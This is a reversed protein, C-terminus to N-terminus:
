SCYKQQCDQLKKLREQQKSGRREDYEANFLAEQHALRLRAVRMDADWEEKEREWEEQNRYYYRYPESWRLEQVAEHAEARSYINYTEEVAHGHAQLERQMLDAEKYKAAAADRYHAARQRAGEIAGEVSDYIGLHCLVQQRHRGGERYNRVLQYYHKGHMKKRRVFSM